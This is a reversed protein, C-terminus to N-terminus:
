AERTLQERLEKSMKRLLQCPECKCDSGGADLIAAMFLKSMTQDGGPVPPTFPSAPLTGPPTEPHTM